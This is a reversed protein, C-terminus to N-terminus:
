AAKLKEEDLMDLKAAVQVMDIPVAVMNLATSLFDLLIELVVAIGLAEVPIGLQLFLISYCAIGGGPVPPVALALLGCTLIAMFIWSLTVPVGYYSAMFMCVCFFIAAHGPRSFATGLPVGFNVLRTSIGLRKECTEMNTSFTAASSATTLAILFSPFLKKALLVPSIKRGLVVGGGMLVLNVAVCLLIVAFLKWLDGLNEIDTLMLHLISVFIIVPLLSTIWEMVLQILTSAQGVMQVLTPIKKNLILMALGFVVALFIIQLTNGEAFPAIINSPVISLLMAFIAQFEGIGQTGGSASFPFFFLCIFTCVVLTFYIRGFYRGIVKNGINGLTATDGISYIGWLLSLFMMPLAIAILIGIFTDFLPTVLGEAIAHSVDSPLSRCALGAILGAIVSCILYVIPNIKKRKPMLAIQNEGNVYHYSPVLGINALLTQVSNGGTLVCDEEGGFPNVRPGPVALTIYQRGLRRGSRFTCESGEGLVSLWKLLVKEVAIQLNKADDADIQGEKLTKATLSSLETVATGSLRYTLTKPTIDLQM